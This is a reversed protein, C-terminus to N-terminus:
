RACAPLRKLRGAQETLCEALRAPNPMARAGKRRPICFGPHAILKQISTRM